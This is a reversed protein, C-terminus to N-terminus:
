VWVDRVLTEYGGDASAAEARAERGEDSRQTFVLRSPGLQKRWARAFTEAREKNRALDAPVPHLREDFPPRRRLVRGLLAPAGRSPDALPRSVLYRPADSVGVLEDLAAAFRKGEEPTAATLECRLYGAARPEITLSAAAEASLEGLELYADAVARAAADLPLVLPLRRRARGLRVAAWALGAPALALGGLLAPLSAAVGLVGFAAAGGLGAGLPIRQSLNPSRVPEAAAAPGATAGTRRVLLTPLEVGRYPTGVQWRERAADRDASRAILEANLAHFREV